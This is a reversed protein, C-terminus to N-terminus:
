LIVHFDAGRYNVLFTTTKTGSSRQPMTHRFMDLFVLWECVDMNVISCPYCMVTSVKCDLTYQQLKVFPM